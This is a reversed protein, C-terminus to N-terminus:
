KIAGWQRGTRIHSITSLCVGFMQSVVNLTAGEALLKRIQLVQLNTLKARGHREGVQSTGHTKKDAHNGARTDWRLNLLSNNSKNGDNHCADFGEPRPGVFTELVLKHVQRKTCVGDKYLGVFLYGHSFDTLKLYRQTKRSHVRGCDSVTYSGEYGAIPMWRETIIINPREDSM